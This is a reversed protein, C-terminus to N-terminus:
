RPLNALGEGFVASLIAIVALIAFATGVGLVIKKLDQKKM